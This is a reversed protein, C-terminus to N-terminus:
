QIWGVTREDWAVMMEENPCGSWLGKIAVMIKEKSGVVWFNKWEM